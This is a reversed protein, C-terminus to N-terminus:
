LSDGGILFGSPNMIISSTYCLSHPKEEKTQAEQTEKNHFVGPPTLNPDQGPFSSGCKPLM